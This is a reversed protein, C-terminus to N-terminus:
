KYVVTGGQPATASYVPGTSSPPPYSPPAYVPAAPQAGYITTPGTTAYGGPTYATNYAVPASGPTIITTPGMGRDMVYIDDDYGRRRWCCLWVFLWIMLTLFIIGGIVFGAIAAATPRYRYYTPFYRADAFANICRPDAGYTNRCAIDTCPWVNGIYMGRCWCECYDAAVPQALLSAALVALTAISLSAM